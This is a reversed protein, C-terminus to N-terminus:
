KGDNTVPKCIYKQDTIPFMGIEEGGIIMSSFVYIVWLGTILTVLSQGM